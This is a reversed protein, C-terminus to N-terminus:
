SMCRVIYTINHTHLVLQNILLLPSLLRFVLAEIVLHTDRLTSLSGACRGEKREEPSAAGRSPPSLLSPTGSKGAACRRRGPAPPWWCAAASQERRRECSCRPWIHHAWRSEHSVFNIIAQNPKLSRKWLRSRWVSLTVTLRICPDYKRPDLKESKPQFGHVITLHKSQNIHWM